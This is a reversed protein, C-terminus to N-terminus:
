QLVFPLFNMSCMSHFLREQSFLYSMEQYIDLVIVNNPFEKQLFLKVIVMHPTKSHCVHRCVPRLVGACGAVHVHGVPSHEVSVSCAALPDATQALQVGLCM